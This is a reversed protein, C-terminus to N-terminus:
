SAAKEEEPQAVPEDDGNKEAVLEELQDLRTRAWAQQETIAMQGRSRTM